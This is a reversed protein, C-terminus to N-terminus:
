SQKVPRKEGKLLDYIYWENKIKVLLEEENRLLAEDAFLSKEEKTEVNYIVFYEKPDYLKHVVFNKTAFEIHRRYSGTKKGKYNYLDDDSNPRVNGSCAIIISDVANVKIDSYLYPIIQEEKFNILGTYITAGDNTIRTVLFSPEASFNIDYYGNVTVQNFERDVLYKKSKVSVAFYNKNESFQRATYKHLTFVSTTDGSMTKITLYKGNPNLYNCLYTKVYTKIFKNASAAMTKYCALCTKGTSDFNIISDYLPKIIVGDNGKIGWKGADKFPITQSIISGHVLLIFFIHVPNRM